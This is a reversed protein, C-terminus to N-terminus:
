LIMALTVILVLSVIVYSILSWLSFLVQLMLVIALMTSSLYVHIVDSQLVHSHPIGSPVWCVGLRGLLWYLSSISSPAM